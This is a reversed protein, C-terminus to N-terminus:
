DDDDDDSGGSNSPPAAPRPAPAVVIVTTPEPIPVVVVAPPVVVTVVTITVITLVGNVPLVIVRVPEGAVLRVRWLLVDPALVLRQGGIVVVDDDLLEVSGGLVQATPLLEVLRLVLLSGDSDVVTRVIAGPALGAPLSVGVPIVLVRGDITISTTEVATVQGVIAVERVPDVSLAVVGQEDDDDEGARAVVRVAVGPGLGPAVVAGPGVRVRLGDVVWREGDVSEVVGIIQLTRAAPTATPAATAGAAQTPVVTAAPATPDLLRAPQPTPAVIRGSAACGAVLSAALGLAVARRAVLAIQCPRM